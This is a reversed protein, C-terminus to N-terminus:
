GEHIAQKRIERTAREIDAPRDVSITDSRALVVKMRVGNELARLQELAEAQELVSPALSALRLLIEKRYGYIGIHKFHSPPTPKEGQSVCYPVPSRSFYLAFGASDTVVKVVNPNTVDEPSAIPYKLTTMDAERDDKLAVVLADLDSPDVLPEDGQINVYLDAPRNRAVEALRETGCRHDRSTMCAEGGFRHVAELIREDDTAVLVEDYVWQIMPKGELPALPKGPFRTSGYRAPIVGETKM